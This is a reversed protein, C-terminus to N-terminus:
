YFIDHLSFGNDMLIKLPENGVITNVQSFSEALPCLLYSIYRVYVMTAYKNLLICLTNCRDMYVLKPMFM